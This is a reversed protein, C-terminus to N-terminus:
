ADPPRRAEWGSGGVGGVNGRPKTQPANEKADQSWRAAQGQPPLLWPSKGNPGTQNKIPGPRPQTRCFGTSPRTLFCQCGFREYDYPYKELVGLSSGRIELLIRRWKEEEWEFTKPDKLGGTTNPANAIKVMDMLPGMDGERRTEWTEGGMLRSGQLSPGALSQDRIKNSQKFASIPYRKGGSTGLNSEQNWSQLVQSNKASLGQSSRYQTIKQGLEILMQDSIEM